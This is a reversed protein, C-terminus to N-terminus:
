AVASVLTYVAMQAIAVAALAIGARAAIRGGRGTPARLAGRGVVIAAVALPLGIWLGGLPLDWALTSGPISLISLLLAIWPRGAPPALDIERPAASSHMATPGKLRRPRNTDVPGDPGAAPRSSSALDAM